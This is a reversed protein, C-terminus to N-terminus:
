RQSKTRNSQKGFVKFCFDVFFSSFIFYNFKKTWENFFDPGLHSRSGNWNYGQFTRCHKLHFELRLLHNKGKEKETILKNLTIFNLFSRQTLVLVNVLYSKKYLEYIRLLGCFKAFDGGIIQSATCILVLVYLVFLQHLNRM